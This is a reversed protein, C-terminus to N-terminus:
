ALPQTGIAKMSLGIRNRKEDVSIVMVKIIDGVSLVDNVNKVRKESIESIHLLGATKIGIDVFAGFDTINRVTGTLITGEKIDSLRVVHQRTVPKPFDSRIDRGPRILAEIIDKVTPLGASLAEATKEADMATLAKKIEPLRNGDKLDETQFGAMNLIEAALRYSEPHVPTNDLPNDGNEIKLFGACQRFTADGLRKVKSLDSRKRFAGHENRYDVINNAVTKSIGAVHSLLAPSATNLNAGVENVVTELVADLTNALEKQNVDHQYQGIGIAKPDIKILEAMPDEVRRAISVAGRITVDYEPLEEQALKSASYVSAGAESTILYHVDSLHHKEILGAAFQETEYSATGNGISILTVHYKKILSLVKKESENREADSKTIMLVGHDLVKGNEDVVAMKCGTRYGPDLGMVVHGALPPTFLLQKLNSAFVHIAQTDAEETLRHRIDRSLAPFLLRKYGDEIALRLYKDFISRYQHFYHYIYRLAWEDNWEIKVSLCGEKEGRNIALVRHSPMTRVPERHDKYMLFKEADEKEENLTTVLFGYKWLRQRLDERLPPNEMMTEAAIDMAGALADEATMVDKEENIFKEAISIPNGRSTREELIEEALPLLGKERAMEARTHRKEKYPLYLDELAQMHAANEIAKKLNPTLKGKKDIALLIEEKRQSLKRLYQLREEITRIEADTLSGTMEKRYRAIFPVTNGEDLLKIAAEAQQPRIHLEDAIIQNIDQMHKRESFVPNM